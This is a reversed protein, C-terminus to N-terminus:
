LHKTIMGMVGEDLKHLESMEGLRDHQSMAVAERRVIRDRWEIDKQVLIRITSWPTRYRADECPHKVAREHALANEFPTEGDM